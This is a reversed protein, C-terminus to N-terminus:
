MWLHWNSPEAAADRRMQVMTAIRTCLTSAEPLSIGSVRRLVSSKGASQPGCAVFQPLSALVEEYFKPQVDSSKLGSLTTRIEDIADLMAKMSAADTSSQVVDLTQEIERM